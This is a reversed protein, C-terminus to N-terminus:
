RAVGAENIRKLFVSPGGAPPVKLEERPIGLNVLAMHLNWLVQWPGKPEDGFPGYRHGASILDPWFEAGAEVFKRLLTPDRTLAGAMEPAQVGLFRWPESLSHNVWGDAFHFVQAVPAARFIEVSLVYCHFHEQGPVGDYSDVLLLGPTEATDLLTGEDFADFDDDVVIKKAIKRCRSRVASEKGYLINPIRV